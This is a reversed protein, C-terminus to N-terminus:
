VLSLRKIQQLQDRCMKMKENNMKDLEQLNGGTVKTIRTIRNAVMAVKVELVGQVVKRTVSTVEIEVIGVVEVVGMDARNVVTDVRNVVMDVRNLVMDKRTTNTTKVIRLSTKSRTRLWLVLFDELLRAWHPICVLFREAVMLEPLEVLLLLFCAERARKTMRTIKNTKNTTPDRVKHM